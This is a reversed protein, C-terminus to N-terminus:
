VTAYQALRAFESITILGQEYYMILKSIQTNM